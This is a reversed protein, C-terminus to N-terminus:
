RVAGNTGHGPLWGYQDEALTRAEPSDGDRILAHRTIGSCVECKLDCTFRGHHLVPSGPPLEPM